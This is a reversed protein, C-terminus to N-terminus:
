LVKKIKRIDKHIKEKHAVNKSHPSKVLFIKAKEGLIKKLALAESAKDNIILIDKNLKSLKKIFNNKTKDKSEYIIKNFYKKIGAGGIKRKQSPIAGLTILFLQHGQKKLSALIEKTEPFLCKDIQKLVKNYEGIVSKEIKTNEIHGIKRLIKIHAEPSYHIHTERFFKDVQLDYEKVSLGFIDSLVRKFKETDILTRDFDFLLIMYKIFRLNNKSAQRLKT